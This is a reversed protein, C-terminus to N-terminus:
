HHKRHGTTEEVLLAPRWLVVSINNFTANFVTLGFSMLIYVSLILSCVSFQSFRLSGSDTCATRFFHHTSDSKLAGFRGRENRSLIGDFWGVLMM